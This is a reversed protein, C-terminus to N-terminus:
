GIHSSFRWEAANFRKRKKKKSDEVQKIYYLGYEFASFKDKRIGRNAQKLIINIGENEERLNLMEEKLISTLTYPKLYEAREEPTMQKGKQTGLLKNKAVREDILFKLKGSTLQTQVNSHAETNIPANAKILYMAEQETDATKFRKYYGEDDNEVGFDPYEDGTLPDTQHKVMYDVLGIGLGNADIVIRRAKYKYFLRKAWIAQDEFHMNTLTYLNVLSKISVEGYNQPIIKFVTIVSDCGDKGTNKRAVDMSLVYYSQLSTRGSHEYEPKQLARNRDFAEGNFFADEVTGSWKSEYEREFSAENFTGDRKLDQIFTKDLLGTLVPIRFTGGMIIAKEPETVMWVLFQILKDYAFTNKYGATTVFIQSKNLTEEPHTSGDMCLRSVNMTPIIVESLITGDVGVCEEVLGGHRRKGRSKESAAINDFFSGNKFMYCVYDKGERTKGPRRDLEREFAPVLTCIENVKEKVIGAAQEKGGSTVFLKARPYLVCRCMLVLVSLFSKSYARPFVMYVYKYRMAARLFVRQYFFFKLGNEPITGDRGTQLFDVLMDPYERWFAIYQRVQPKIAEIREESLGIKKHDQSLRLLDQLAM